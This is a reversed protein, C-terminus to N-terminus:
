PVKGGCRLHGQMANGHPNFTHMGGIHGHCDKRTSYGQEWLFGLIERLKEASISERTVGRDRIARLAMKVATTKMEKEAQHLELAM